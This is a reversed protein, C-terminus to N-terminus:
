RSGRVHGVVEQQRSKAVTLLVVSDELAELSHVAEPVVLLDGSRGTWTEGLAHLAVRGQLVHVTAEGPNVHDDLRRGGLLAIVTQRLV